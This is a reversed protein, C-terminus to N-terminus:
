RSSPGTWSARREDAMWRVVQRAPWGRRITTPEEHPETAIRDRLTRWAGETDWARRSGAPADPALARRLLDEDLPEEDDRM